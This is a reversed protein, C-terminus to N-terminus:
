AIQKRSIRIYYDQLMKKREEFDKIAVCLGIDVRQLAKIQEIQEQTLYPRISPVDNIHNIEKFKKADMGLVIRNIMNIENSFHYHRPEEHLQMVADTFEPYEAKVDALSRIFQEMENFRKIYAEKFRMAKAGTFGMVLMTFGDKTMLIEPQKRGYSDKYKSVVFNRDRFEESVENKLLDLVRIVNDHRKGFVEAVKRSSVVPIGKAETVGFYEDSQTTKPKQMQKLLYEKTYFQDGIQIGILEPLLDKM